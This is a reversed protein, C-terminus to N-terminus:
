NLARGGTLQARVNVVPCDVPVLHGSRVGARGRPLLVAFRDYRGALRTHRIALPWLQVLHRACRPGPCPDAGRVASLSAPADYIGRARWVCRMAVGPHPAGVVVPWLDDM